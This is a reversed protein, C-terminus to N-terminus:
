RLDRSLSNSGMDGAARLEGQTDTGVVSTHPGGNVPDQADHNLSAGNSSWAPFVGDKAM